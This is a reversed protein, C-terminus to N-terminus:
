SNEQKKILVVEGEKIILAYQPNEGQKWIITQEEFSAEKMIMELQTKQSQELEKLISNRSIFILLNFPKKSIIKSRL